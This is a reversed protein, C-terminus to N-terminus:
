TRNRSRLHRFVERWVHGEDVGATGNPFCALLAAEVQQRNVVLGHEALHGILDAHEQEDLRAPPEAM